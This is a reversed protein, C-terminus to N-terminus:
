VIIGCPTRRLTLGTYLLNFWVTRYGCSSTTRSFWLGRLHSSDSRLCHHAHARLRPAAATRAPQAHPPAPVGRPAASPCAAAASPAHAFHTFHFPPCHLSGRLPTRCLPSLYFFYARLFHLYAPLTANMGRTTRCYAALRRTFPLHIRLYCVWGRTNGSSRALRQWVL